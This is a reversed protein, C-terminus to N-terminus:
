RQFYSHWHKCNHFSDAETTPSRPWQHFLALPICLASLLGKVAASPFCWNVPQSLPSRSSALVCVRVCICVCDLSLNPLNIKM